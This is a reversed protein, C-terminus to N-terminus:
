SRESRLTLYGSFIILLGGIISKRGPIESLFIMSLVIASVPELYGLVATKNATVFQLGKFYLIPAITSHIIGM